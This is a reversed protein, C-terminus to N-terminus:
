ISLELLLGWLGGASINWMFILAGQVANKMLWEYAIIFLDLVSVIGGKVQATGFVTWVPINIM